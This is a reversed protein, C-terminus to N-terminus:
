ISVGSRQLVRSTEHLLTRGTTSSAPSSTTMRPINELPVLRPKVVNKRRSYASAHHSSMLNSGSQLATLPSEFTPLKIRKKKKRKKKRRAHQGCDVKPKIHSVDVVQDELRHFGPRAQTLQALQMEREHRRIDQWEPSADGRSKQSGSADLTWSAGALNAIWGGVAATSKPSMVSLEMTKQPLSPLRLKMSFVM